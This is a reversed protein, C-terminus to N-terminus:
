IIYMIDVIYLLAAIWKFVMKLGGFGRDATISYDKLFYIRM